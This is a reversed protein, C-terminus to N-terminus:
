PWPEVHTHLIYATHVCYTRLIYSTDNNCTNRTDLMEEEEREWGERGSCDRVRHRLLMLVPASSENVSSESELVRGNFEELLYEDVGGSLNHYTHTNNTNNHM